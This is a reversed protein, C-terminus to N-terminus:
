RAVTQLLNGLRMKKALIQSGDYSLHGSDRYVFTGDLSTSCSSKSCLIEDFYVVPVFENQVRQLFDLVLIQKKHYDSFPINCDSATGLILLGTVKRELCRGIDFNSTPPPAVIVVSKGLGRLKEVTIRMAEVAGSVTAEREVLQGKIIKLSSWSRVDDGTSLFQVFPSSLVVTKVSPTAALYNFVSQNFALCQEAWARSHGVKDIPAMEVFPGCVSRTAQVVGANTTAIIGPVLHMAFSDGWVLLTPKDSNKCESKPIFNQDFECALGFGYNPRRVQSYDVMPPHALAVGFPALGLALSAGVMTGVLKRSIRIETHRVPLEVYRYLLFGLCLALAVAALHVETPPEVIYANNILAFIPWHALYLSYSFDGVKALARPGSKASFGNHRRLIVVVTSICVIFADVGPHPAGIPFIPIVVLAIVSPWFLYLVALPMKKGGDLVVMAALSGIALEWARTPLLYFAATPKLPVLVICLALSAILIMSTGVLWFRKPVYVLTAPLFLYYQEEISLSWVHLLPKLAAAGDFYGAQRWLVFNGTFTVAGIIQKSFDRLEDAGLFTMSLFSTAIFTVYAAPLLRKARRFYFESFRFNGQEIGKKVMGTILYGSIVFFIDVGLYGAGLLGLKAHHLVVLLVALGRLAQIDTRFVM